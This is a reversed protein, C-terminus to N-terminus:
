FTGLRAIPFSAVVRVWHYGSEEGGFWYSSTDASSDDAVQVLIFQVLPHPHALHSPRLVQYFTIEFEQAIPSAGKESWLGM